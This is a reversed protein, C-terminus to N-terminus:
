ETRAGCLFSKLTLGEKGRLVTSKGGGIRTNQGGGHGGHIGTRGREQGLNCVSVSGSVHSSQEERKLGLNWERALVENDKGRLRKELDGTPFRERSISIQNKKLNVLVKKRERAQYV